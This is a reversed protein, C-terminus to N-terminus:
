GPPPVTGLDKTTTLGASNAAELTVQWTGAPIAAQLSGSTPQRGLDLAQPPNVGTPDTLDLKLALWPTGPDSGQWSLTTGVLQADVAPPTTDWAVVLPALRLTARHGAYNVASISAPYTGAALTPAPTWTLAHRGSGLRWTTVKGAVSLTVSARQSLTIPISATDLWGDQPQPYLTPPTAGVTVQPAAYLYDHFRQAAGVWFPDQTQAALKALEDTVYAQYEAPAYSGGLEYRSWDGTDFRPLLTQATGAMAQALTMAADDGATQGYEGLSLIAQLQANLVLERNFGYLRIWPGSPLALVLPPVAAYARRAAAVLSADQLLTGARALAQAAVAEAMGSAWPPIGGGFPFAYEWILRTGRPVARALLASALASTAETDGRAAADNLAGFSALPHFELGQRPFWRYVVGDADSVDVRESPLRHSEFYSLNQELQSFLALARPATYSDWLATIQRLQAAVILARLKPLRSADRVALTVDGRYRQADEPKLWHQALANSVGRRALSASYAVSAAALDPVALSVACVAAALAAARKM